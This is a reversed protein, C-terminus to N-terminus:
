QEITRSDYSVGTIELEEDYNLIEVEPLEKLLKALKVKM